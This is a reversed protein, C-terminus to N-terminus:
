FPIDGFLDEDSVVECPEPMSGMVYDVIRDYKEGATNRVTIRETWRVGGAGAIEVAREASDPMPDAFTREVV